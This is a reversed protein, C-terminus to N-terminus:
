GPRPSRSRRRRSPTPTTSSRNQDSGGRGDRWVTTPNTIQKHHQIRSRISPRLRRPGAGSASQRRGPGPEAPVTPAAQGRDRCPELRDVDAQSGLPRLTDGQDHGDTTGAAPHADRRHRGAVLGDPRGAIRRITRANAIPLCHALQDNFDAPPTFTRGPLFSTGSLRQRDVDGEIGSRLTQAPDGDDVPHRRVLDRPRDVPRPVRDRIRQGVVFQHPVASLGTSLLRWMGAVLDM